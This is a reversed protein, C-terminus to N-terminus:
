LSRGAGTFLLVVTAGNQTSILKGVEEHLEHRMHEARQSHALANRRGYLDM